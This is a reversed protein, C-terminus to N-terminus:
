CLNFLAANRCGSILAGGAVGAAIYSLVQAIVKLWKAWDERNLGM